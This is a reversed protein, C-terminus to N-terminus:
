TTKFLKTTGLMSAAAIVLVMMHAVMQVGLVAMQDEKEQEDETAEKTTEVVKPFFTQVMGIQCGNVISLTFGIVLMFINCLIIMRVVSSSKKSLSALIILSIVIYLVGAIIGEGISIVKLVGINGTYWHTNMGFYIFIINLVSVILGLLMVLIATAKLYMAVSGNKVCEIRESAYNTNNLEVPDMIEMQKEDPDVIKQVKEM